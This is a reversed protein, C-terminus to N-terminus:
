LITKSKFISKGYFKISVTKKFNAPVSPSSGGVRPKPSRQEVLQVVDRYWFFNFSCFIERRLRM